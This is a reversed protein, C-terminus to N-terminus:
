MTKAVGTRDRGKERVVGVAGREDGGKAGEVREGGGGGVVLAVAEIKKGVEEGAAVSAEFIEVRGQEALTGMPGEEEVRRNLFSLYGQWVVAFVGSFMFRFHAPVVAFNM